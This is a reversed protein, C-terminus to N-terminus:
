SLEKNGVVMRHSCGLESRGPKQDVSRRKDRGREPSLRFCSPKEEAQLRRSGGSSVGVACPHTSIRIHLGGIHLLNDNELYIEEVGSTKVVGVLIKGFLSSTQM